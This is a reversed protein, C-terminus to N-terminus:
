LHRALYLGMGTVAAVVMAEGRYRERRNKEPVTKHLPALFDFILTLTLVAAGSVFGWLALDTTFALPKM